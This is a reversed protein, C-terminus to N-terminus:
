LNMNRGACEYDAATRKTYSPTDAALDNITAALGSLYSSAVDRQASDLSHITRLAYAEWLNRNHVRADVRWDSFTQRRKDMYAILKAKFNSEKRTDLLAYFEADLNDRIQRFSTNPRIMLSMTERLDNVQEENLSFNVLLLYRKIQKLRGSVSEALIQDIEREDEDRSARRSERRSQRNDRIQILQQDSLNSLIDSSAYIPNCTGVSSAYSRIIESWRSVDAKNVSATDNLRATFDTLLRSYYELQTQRHWLHFHDAIEQIQGIQEEDFSAYDLFRKEIRDDLSNYLPRLV